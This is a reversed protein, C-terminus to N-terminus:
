SKLKEAIKGLVYAVAILLALFKGMLWDNISAFGAIVLVVFILILWWVWQPLKETGYGTGYPYGM